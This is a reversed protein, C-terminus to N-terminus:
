SGSSTSLLLLGQPQLVCSQYGKLGDSAGVGKLEYAIQHFFPTENSTERKVKM